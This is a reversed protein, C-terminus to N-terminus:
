QVAFPGATGGASSEVWVTAPRTAPAAGNRLRIDFTGAPVGAAVVASGLVPGSLSGTHLRVTAGTLSGGGTVRFDGAKWTAKAISVQDPVVLVRVDDIATGGGATM